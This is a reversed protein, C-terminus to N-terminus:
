RSRRIVANEITTEALGDQDFEFVVPERGTGDYISFTSGDEPLSLSEFSLFGNWHVQTVNCGLDKRARGSDNNNGAFNKRSPYCQSGHPIRRGTFRNTAQM